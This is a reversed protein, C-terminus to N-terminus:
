NRPIILFGVIVIAPIGLPAVLAPAACAFPKLEARLPRATSVPLQPCVFCLPSVSMEDVGACVSLLVFGAAAFVSHSKWVPVTARGLKTDGGSISEASMDSM